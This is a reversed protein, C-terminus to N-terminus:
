IEIQLGDYSFYVNQPLQKSIEDHLGMQHSMHVLYARRPSVRHIIDLADTLRQHSIHENHRLANIILVDLSKLKEVEEESITLMDTIYAMNGIRYGLIPLNYHMVRIPLVKVGSVEFERNDITRMDFTAVGPYKNEGFCYPFTRKITDEVYQEACIPMAKNNTFSRLEDLGFIHDYHHHTLLVADLHKVNNTLMQQRFDPGCDILINKNEVTILLSTRLRKDKPNASQCVKCNCGIQPVGTSTGTGLFLLKM